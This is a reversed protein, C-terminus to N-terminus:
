RILPQGAATRHCTLIKASRKASVHMPFIPDPPTTPMEVSLCETWFRRIGRPPGHPNTTRTLARGAPDPGSGPFHKGNNEWSRTLLAFGFWGSSRNCLHSSRQRDCQRRRFIFSWGCVPVQAFGAGFAVVDVTHHNVAGTRTLTLAGVGAVLTLQLQAQCKSPCPPHAATPPTM